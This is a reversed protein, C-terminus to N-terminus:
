IAAKFFAQELQQLKFKVSCDIVTDNMKVVLGGMLEPTKIKHIIITKGTKSELHSKISSIQKDTPEEAYMVEIELIGAYKQYAQKFAVTAGFLIDLRAKEVLLTLFGWSEESISKKFLAELVSEKQEAKIVPNRLFFRLEKSQEITDHILTMDNLVKEVKNQEIAFDLLAKAYRRSAKSAIM